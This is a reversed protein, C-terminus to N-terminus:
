RMPLGHLKPHYDTMILRDMRLFIKLKDKANLIKKRLDNAQKDSGGVQPNMLNATNGTPIIEQEGKDDKSTANNSSTNSSSSNSNSSTDETNSSTDETNSSVSNSDSSTVSSNVSTNDLVSSNDNSVSNSDSSVDDSMVDSSTQTKSSETTPKKSTSPKSDNCGVLLIMLVSLCIAFFRKM